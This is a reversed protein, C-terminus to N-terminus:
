RAIASTPAERRACRVFLVIFYMHHVISEWAWWIVANTHWDLDPNYFLRDLGM